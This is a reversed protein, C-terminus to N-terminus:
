IWNRWHRTMRELEARIVRDPPRPLRILLRDIATGTTWRLSDLAVRARVARLVFLHRFGIPCVKRRKWAERQNPFAAAAALQVIERVASVTLPRSRGVLPVFVTGSNTATLRARADLWQRLYTTARDMLLVLRPSRGSRIMVSRAKLDVDEVRLRTLDRSIIGSALLYLIARDRSNRRPAALTRQYLYGEHLSGARGFPPLPPIRLRATPDGYTGVLKRKKMWRHFARIIYISRRWTESGVIVSRADMRARKALHDTFAIVDSERAQVLGDQCVRAFARLRDTTARVSTTSWGGARLSDAWLDILYETSRQSGEDPAGGAGAAKTSKVTALTASPGHASPLRLCCLGSM